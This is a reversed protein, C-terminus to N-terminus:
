ASVRNLMERAAVLDPTDFGETFWGYLPELLAIIETQRHESDLMRCLSLAVRLELLKASQSRAVELGSRFSAEAGKIDPESLQLLLEGQIRYLDAEMFREGSRQIHEFQDPLIALGDQARGEAGYLEALYARFSSVALTAGTREWLAIGQTLTEIGVGLDGLNAKCIGTNMLSHSLWLPFVQEAAQETHRLAQSLSTSWERTYLHVLATYVRAQLLTFMFGVREGLAISKTMSELSQDRFGLILQSLGIYTLSVVGSDQGYVAALGGHDNANYYSHAATANQLAAVFNGQFFQNAGLCIHAMLWYEPENGKQAFALMQNCLDESTDLEARLIYFAFLGWLVFFHQLSEQAHGCLERARNYTKGVQSDGFGRTALLAAGLATLLSLEHQDRDPGDSILKLLELGHTLHAIAEVNASRHLARQGASGWYPLSEAIQGAETLHHAVTEPDSQAETKFSEVMVRAAQRHYQQRTAKLLSNYAADQILAHKFRYNAHPVEGLQFLIGADVLHRLDIQITAHRELAVAAILEYSFERGLTAGVQAVTKATYLRDLRAMLSDQLTTPISLSPLPTTLEYLDNRETLQGSELVMKTMEEIYLPVGDSKVILQNIVDLPLTKNGAVKQVMLRSSELPLREIRMQELQAAGFFSFDFEPRTTLVVLIPIESIKGVFFSLLELTSPDAWHLDEVVLLVPQEAARTMLLGLLMELIRQKQRTPNPDLPPYEAGTPVSLLSALLPVGYQLPMDINVVYEDLKSLKQDNTDAREFALVIRELLDIVPWFASNKHFPSCRLEVARGSEDALAEDKLTQVLRSKGLGAEGALQIAHGHGSHASEWLMLLREIAAERGILPTLGTAAAVDLRTRAEGEGIVRYVAIPRTVGKLAHEGLDIIEFFGRVLQCTAGSIVMTGPEAFVELRAAINPTEGVIAMSEFQEGEGMDGAVVLGTHVGIRAKVEVGHTTQIRRGLQVIAKLMALGTQVARIPDDEHAQPYGFYILMGDGLYKAVYGEYRNVAAVCVRHYDQLITRLDEPDLQESLGTSGVLDCFMVTLQRREAEMRIPQGVREADLAPTPAANLVSAPTQPSAAKLPAGCHECFKFGAPNAGGCGCCLITIRTGCQGCFRASESNDFGCSNCRM